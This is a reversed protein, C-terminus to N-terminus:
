AGGDGAPKTARCAALEAVVARVREAQPSDWKSGAAYIPNLSEQGEAIVGCTIIKHTLLRADNAYADREAMAEDRERKTSERKLKQLRAFDRLEDREREAQEAREQERNARDEEEALRQHAEALAREAAEARAKYESVLAQYVAADAKAIDRERELEGVREVAARLTAALDAVYRAFNSLTMSVCRHPRPEGHQRLLEASDDLLERAKEHDYASM